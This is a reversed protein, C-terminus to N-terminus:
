VVAGTDAAPATEAAPAADAAPAEAVVPAAPAAPVEVLAISTAEGATNTVTAFDSINDQADTATITAIGVKGTGTILVSVGDAQLVGTAVSEDSSAVTLDGHYPTENGLVDRFVAKVTETGVGKFKIDM